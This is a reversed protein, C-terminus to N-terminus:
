PRTASPATPCSSPRTSATRRAAPWSRPARRGGADHSPKSQDAARSLAAGALRHPRARPARLEALPFWRRRIRPPRTSATSPSMRSACITTAAATDGSYVAYFKAAANYPAGPGQEGKDPQYPAATTVLALRCRSLPRALPHFPVRRLAGVRLACRIGAGPLLHRPRQLYPIPVDHPPAFGFERAREISM